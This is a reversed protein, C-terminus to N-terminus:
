QTILFFSTLELLKRAPEKFDKIYVSIVAAFLSLCKKGIQIEEQRLTRVLILKM